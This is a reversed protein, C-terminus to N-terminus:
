FPMFLKDGESVLYPINMRSHFLIIQHSQDIYKEDPLFVAGGFDTVEFGVKGPKYPSSFDYSDEYYDYSCLFRTDKSSKIVRDPRSSWAGVEVGKNIIVLMWTDPLEWEWFRYEPPIVLGKEWRVLWEKKTPANGINNALTFFMSPLKGECQQLADPDLTDDWAIIINAAGDKITCEDRFCYLYQEKRNTRFGHTEWGTVPEYVLTFWDFWFWQKKLLKGLEEAAEARKQPKIVLNNELYDNFVFLINTRANDRCDEIQFNIADRIADIYPQYTEQVAEPSLYHVDEGRKGSDIAQTRVLGEILSAAMTIHMVAELMAMGIDYIETVDGHTQVNVKELLNITVRDGTCSAQIGQAYGMCKAATHTDLIIAGRRDIDENNAVAIRYDDIVKRLNKYGDWHPKLQIMADHVDMQVTLDDFRRDMDRSLTDIKNSINNLMNLTIEEPTPGGMFMLAIDLGVSAFGLVASAKGFATVGNLVGQMKTLKEGAGALKTAEEAWENAKSVAENTGDIIQKAIDIKEKKEELSNDNTM